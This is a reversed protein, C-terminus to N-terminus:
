DTLDSSVMWRGDALVVSQSDGMNTCYSPSAIVQWTDAVPDYIAANVGGTTSPDAGYEGGAMVVRGDPLVASAYFVPDYSGPLVALATWTGKTYDGYANPTLKYPSQSLFIVSGDTLLHPVGHQGNVASGPPNVSTWSSAPYPTPAHTPSTPVATPSSTPYPLTPAFTPYAVPARGASGYAVYFNNSNGHGGLVIDLQGDNNLDGFDVIAGNTVARIDVVNGNSNRVTLNDSSHIGSTGPDIWYIIDGWNIGRVLDMVGDENVDYLRPYWNYCQSSFLTVAAGCSVSATSRTNQYLYINGCSAGSVIDPFGDNNWDGVDFRIDSLVLPSGTIASQIFYPLAFTPTVARATNKYVCLRNYYDSMVLDVAGDGDMDALAFTSTEYQSSILSGDVTRLQIGAGFSPAVSYGTNLHLYIYGGSGILLDLKGDV